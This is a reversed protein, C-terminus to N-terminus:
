HYLYKENGAFLNDFDYKLRIDQDMIHILLDNFDLIVWKSEPKGSVGVFDLEALDNSKNTKYFRQLHDVLSKLHIDNLSSAVIVKDTVPHEGIGFDVVLINEAKKDELEKVILNIEDTM